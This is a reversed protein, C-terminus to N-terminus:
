GAMIQKLWQAGRNTDQVVSFPYKMATRARLGVTKAGNRDTGDMQSYSVPKSTALNLVYSRAVTHNAGRRLYKTDGNVGVTVIPEENPDNSEHLFIEVPEAMFALEAAKDKFRSLDTEVEIERITNNRKVSGTTPIDILLDKDKAEVVDITKAM